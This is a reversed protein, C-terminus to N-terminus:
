DIYMNPPKQYRSRYGKLIIEGVFITMSLVMGTALFLFAPYCDILDVSLFRSGKFACHPKRTYYRKVFRSKFGTETIRKMGIKFLESYPNGRKMALWPDSSKFFSVRLEQLGCKEDEGFTKQIIQYGVSTEVHFAVLGDRVKKIGEEPSLFHPREKPPAIKKEYFTKRPEDDATKFYYQSYTANDAAAIMPSKLLDYLTQMSSDSSQLIAVISACYSNYLFMYSIYVFLIIIRGAPHLTFAITGQQCIAGINYLIIDSIPVNSLKIHITDTTGESKLAIYLAICAILVLGFCCVWVMTAFPLTYINKAHSLPPSKFIFKAQTPNVNAYYEIVQLREKTMFIPSTSIISDGRQLDGVLGTWSGNEQKLGWVTDVRVSLSMNLVFELHKVANHSVKPTTDKHKEYLDELHKTTELDSVVLTAPVVLGQLNLRRVATPKGNLIVLGNERTWECIEEKIIDNRASIKYPSVVLMQGDSYRVVVRVDSDVYIPLNNLHRWIVDVAFNNKAIKDNMNMNIPKTTGFRSLLLWKYPKRFLNLKAAQNLIDKWNPSLDFHLIFSVLESSVNSLREASKQLTVFHGLSTSVMKGLEVANTDRGITIYYGDTASNYFSM